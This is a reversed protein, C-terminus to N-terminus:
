VAASSNKLRATVSDKGIVAISFRRKRRESSTDRTGAKQSLCFEQGLQAVVSANVIAAERGGTLHVGIIEDSASTCFATPVAGVSTYDRYHGHTWHIYVGGRSSSETVVMSSQFVDDGVSGEHRRQQEQVAAGVWMDEAQRWADAHPPLPEAAIIRAALTGTLMYTPGPMFQPYRKYQYTEHSLYLATGAVRSVNAGGYHGRGAYALVANVSAVRTDNVSTTRLAETPNHVASSSAAAATWVTKMLKLLKDACLLTDDDVKVIWDLSVTETSADDAELTSAADSPRSQVSAGPFISDLLAQSFPDSSQLTAGALARVKAARSRVDLLARPSGGGREVDDDQVAHGLNSNVNDHLSDVIRLGTASDRELDTRSENGSSSSRRRRRRTRRSRQTGPRWSSVNTVDVGDSPITVDPTTQRLTAAAWTQTIWVMAAHVKLTLHAYTDVFGNLVVVDGLVPCELSHMSDKRRGGAQMRSRSGSNIVDANRDSCARYAGDQTHLGAASADGARSVARAEAALAVAFADVRGGEWSNQASTFRETDPLVHVGGLGEGIFFRHAIIVGHEAARGRLCRLWTERIAQRRSFREPKTMIAIFVYSRRVSSSSSANMQKGSSATRRLATRELDSRALSLYKISSGSTLGGISNWALLVALAVGALLGLWVARLRNRPSKLVRRKMGQPYLGRALVVRVFM